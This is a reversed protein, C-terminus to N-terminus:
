NVTLTLAGLGAGVNVVAEPEIEGAAVMAALPQTLHRLITRKLERAGYEQSTGTRLLFQRADPSVDLEFAREGLRTNIHRELNAIQQDVIRELAAADLPQYTVVADIRNVFEPSFKRKVAGMGIRELKLAMLAPADLPLMAQFGFDPRVEKAMERAGLNSTMFILTREFNVTTNDGLRLIARDLVGLLLRGM